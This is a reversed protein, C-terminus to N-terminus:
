QMKQKFNNKEETSLKKEIIIIGDSRMEIPTNPHDKRFENFAKVTDSEEDAVFDKKNADYYTKEAM